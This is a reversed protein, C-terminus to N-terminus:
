LGEGTTAYVTATGGPAIVALTTQTSPDRGIVKSQGALVPYDTAAATVGTGGLKVFVATSGANQVEVSTGTGALTAPGSTATASVTVTPGPAFPSINM